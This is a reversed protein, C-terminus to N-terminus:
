QGHCRAELYRAIVWPPESVHKRFELKCDPWRDSVIFFELPVFDDFCDCSSYARTVFDVKPTVVQKNEHLDVLYSSDKSSIRCQVAHLSRLKLNFVALSKCFMMPILTTPESKSWSLRYLMSSSPWAGGTLSGSASHSLGLHAQIPKPLIDVNPKIRLTSV